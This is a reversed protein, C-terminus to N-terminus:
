SFNFRLLVRGSLTHVCSIEEVVHCFTFSLKILSIKYAPNLSSLLLLHFLVWPSPLWPLFNLDHWAWLFDSCSCNEHFNSWCLTGSLFQPSSCILSRYDKEGLPAQPFRLKSISFKVEGEEWRRFKQHRRSILNSRFGSSLPRIICHQSTLSWPCLIPHSITLSSRLVLLSIWYVYRIRFSQKQNSQWAVGHQQGQKFSSIFLTLSKYITLASHKLTM